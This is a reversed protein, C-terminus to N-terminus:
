ARTRERLWRLQKELQTADGGDHGNFRYEVVEVPVDHGTDSGYADVMARVGAVPCLTDALGYSVLAPTTSRPVLNVVDIHALTDFLANVRERHTAAYTRAELYPGDSASEVSQEIDCLLPVNAMVGGLGPLLGSVALAIGAGQSNGSLFVHHRNHGSLKEAASVAAVADLILRVYYLNKPADAGQTLFGPVHPSSGHPDPTDGGTGYQSGQGRTDMLLHAFGAAAWWLREFPKGRGRGYGLYEVVVGRTPSNTPHTFWGRIPDGHAGTFTVDDISVTDTLGHVPTASVTPTPLHALQDDWFTRITATTPM